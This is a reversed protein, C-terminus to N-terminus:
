RGRPVADAAAGLRAAVDRDQILQLVVNSRLLAQYDGREIAQRMSEDTLVKRFRADQQLSKFAPDDLLKQRRKPDTAADAVHVLDKVPSFQTMEFLNYKRAVGFAYSERPSIGLRRGALTINREAFTLASLIVYSIAVVKMAGLIFGLAQDATRDEDDRGAFLRKLIQTLVFRVAVLVVIFTAITGLVVGVVLPSGLSAAIRPGFFTGIPRSCGFAAALGVLQAIQRAAGTFAGVVAFIGTVILLFLDISM